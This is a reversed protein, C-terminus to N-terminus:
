VVYDNHWQPPRRNRGGRERTSVPPEEVEEEVVRTTPGMDHPRRPVSLLRLHKRNRISIRGSGDLRMTYQHCWPRYEIITGSRDWAKTVVDQIAVKEGARLHSLDKASENYKTSVCENSANREEERAVLTESQYETIRHYSKVMPVSDRLQRGMALQAPSKHIGRLPTNRYQLTAQAVSDSDLSGNPLTNNMLTCKATRVAAEARGNSQPYHASSVRM